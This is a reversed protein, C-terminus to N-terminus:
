SLKLHGGVHALLEFMDSANKEHEKIDNTTKSEVEGNPLVLYSVYNYQRCLDNFKQNIDSNINDPIDENIINCQERKQEIIKSAEKSLKRSIEAKVESPDFQHAIGILFRYRSIIQMAEVGNIDKLIFAERYSVDFNCHGVWLNYTRLAYNKMQPVFGMPTHKMDLLPPIQVMESSSDGLEDEYDLLLDSTDEGSSEKIFSALSFKEWVVKRDKAKM